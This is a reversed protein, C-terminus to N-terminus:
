KDVITINKKFFILYLYEMLQEQRGGVDYEGIKMKM